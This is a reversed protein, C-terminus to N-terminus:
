RRRRSPAASKRERLDDGGAHRRPPCSVDPQFGFRCHSVVSLFSILPGFSAQVDAFYGLLLYALWTFRDRHFAAM